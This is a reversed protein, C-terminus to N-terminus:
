LINPWKVVDHMSPNFRLSHLSHRQATNMIVVGRVGLVVSFRFMNIKLISKQGYIYWISGYSQLLLKLFM